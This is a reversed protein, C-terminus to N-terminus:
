MLIGKNVCGADVERKLYHSLSLHNVICSVYINAETEIILLEPPSSHDGGSYIIINDLQWFIDWNIDWLIYRLNLMDLNLNM